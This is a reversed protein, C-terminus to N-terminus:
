HRIWDVLRDGADFVMAESRESGAQRVLAQFDPEEGMGRDFSIGVAFHSEDLGCELLIPQTGGPIAQCAEFVGHLLLTRLMLEDVGSDRLRAVLLDSVRGLHRSSFVNEYFVKASSALSGAVGFSALNRSREIRSTQVTAQASTKAM